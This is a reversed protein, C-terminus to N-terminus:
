PLDKAGRGKVALATVSCPPLRVRVRNESLDVALNRAQVRDPETFTNADQPEAALVRASASIATFRGVLEVDYAFTEEPDANTLTILMKGSQQSKSASVTVLDMLADKRMRTAASRIERRPRTHLCELAEGGQHGKFMEFVHYTPTRYSDAGDTRLLAHLVNVSQAITALAIRRPYSQLLHFYRAAFIADRHTCPQELSKTKWGEPHWIGWEDLALSIRQDGVVADIVGLLSEIRLRNRQDVQALLDWYEDVTFEGGSGGESYLHLSAMEMNGRIGCVVEQLCDEHPSFPEPRWTPEILSAIIRLDKDVRLMYKRWLLYRQVYDQPRHRWYAENGIAWYNVKWPEKRGNERRLGTIASEAEGNCYEVWDMADQATLTATNVCLNPEAGTLECLRMFEHTGFANPEIDGDQHELYRVPRNEQPGVGDRWDYCDAFFGGPWRILPASVSRLVAVAEERIGDINPIKSDRGVWIGDYIFHGLHEIFHGYVEPAIRGRTQDSYVILKEAM